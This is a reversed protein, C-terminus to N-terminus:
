EVISFDVRRDTHWCGEDRCDPKAESDGDSVIKIRSPSIGAGVLASRVAEARQLGLKYNHEKGGREDAKGELVVNQNPHAKLSAINRRLDAKEETRIAASNVNFYVSKNSVVRSYGDTKCITACGTTLSAAALLAAWQIVKM